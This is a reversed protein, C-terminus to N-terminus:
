LRYFTLDGYLAAVNATTHTTEEIPIDAHGPLWWCVVSYGTRSISSLLHLIDVQV